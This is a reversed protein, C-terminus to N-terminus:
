VEGSELSRNTYECTLPMIRSIIFKFMVCFLFYLYWALIYARSQSHIFVFYVLVLFRLKRWQARLWLFDLLLGIQHPETSQTSAQSGFPQQNLEWDPCKGPNHALSGLPTPAHSAVVCQHKEGEMGKERFIVLTKLFLFFFGFGTSYNKTM